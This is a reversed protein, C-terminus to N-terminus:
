LATADLKVGTVAFAVLASVGVAVWYLWASWSLPGLSLRRLRTARPVPSLGAVTVPHGLRRVSGLGLLGLGVLGLGSGARPELQGLVGIGVLGIGLFGL